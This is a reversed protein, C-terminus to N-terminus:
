KIDSYSLKPANLDAYDRFVELAPDHLVVGQNKSGNKWSIYTIKEKNDNLGFLMDRVGYFSLGFKDGRLKIPVGFRRADEDKFEAAGSLIARIFAWFELIDPLDRVVSGDDTWITVEMTRAPSEIVEPEAERQATPKSFPTVFGSENWELNGYMPSWGPMLINAGFNIGLLVGWVLPVLLYPVLYAKFYPWAKAIQLRKVYHGAEKLANWWPESVFYGLVGACAVLIVAALVLLLPDSKPHRLLRSKPWWFPRFALATALAFYLAFGAQGIVIVVLQMPLVILLQMALMGGIGQYIVSWFDTWENTGRFERGGPQGLGRIGPESM